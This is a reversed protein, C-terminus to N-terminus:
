RCCLPIGAKYMRQLQHISKRRHVCLICRSSFIRAFCVTVCGTDTDTSLVLCFQIAYAPERIARLIQPAGWGVIEVVLALLAAAAAILWLRCRLRLHTIAHLPHSLSRSAVTCM